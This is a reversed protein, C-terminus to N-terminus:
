NIKIKIRNKKIVLNVIKFIVIYVFYLFLFITGLIISIVDLLYYQYWSLDVAVSRLEPAGKHRIIYEVWFVATDIPTNLRDKFKNSVM